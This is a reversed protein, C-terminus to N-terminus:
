IYFWRCWCSVDEDEPEDSNGCGLQDYFYIARGRCGKHWWAKCAHFVACTCFWFCFYPMISCKRRTNQCHLLVNIEGRYGHSWTWHTCTIARFEQDAMYWSSRFHLRPMQHQACSKIGSITSAGYKLNPKKRHPIVQLVNGHQKSRLTIAGSAPVQQVQRCSRFMFLSTQSGYHTQSIKICEPQSIAVNQHM